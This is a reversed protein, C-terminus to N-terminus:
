LVCRINDNVKTDEWFWLPRLSQELVKWLAQLFSYAACNDSDQDLCPIGLQYQADAFETDSLGRNQSWYTFTGRLDM